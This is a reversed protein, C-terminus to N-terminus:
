TVEKALIELHNRGGRDVVSAIEMTHGRWLIRHLHTVDARYRIRIRHTAIVNAQQAQLIDRSSLGGVEAWVTCLTTDWNLTTEGSTSRVEQPSKITIRESLKGIIM